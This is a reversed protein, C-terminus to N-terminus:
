PMPEWDNALTDAPNFTYPSCTYNMQSNQTCAEFRPLNLIHTGAQFPGLLPPKRVSVAEGARYMLFQNSPWSPRQMWIGTLTNDIAESFTAAHCAGSLLLITVAARVKSPKTTM